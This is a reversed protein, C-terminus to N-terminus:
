RTSFFIKGYLYIEAEGCDGKPLAELIKRCANAVGLNETVIKLGNDTPQFVTREVAFTKERNLKTLFIEDLGHVEAFGDPFQSGTLFQTKWVNFANLFRLIFEDNKNIVLM